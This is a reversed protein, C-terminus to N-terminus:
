IKFCELFISFARFYSPKFHIWTSLLINLVRLQTTDWVLHVNRSFLSAISMAMATPSRPSAKVPIYLMCLVCRSVCMDPVHQGVASGTIWKPKGMVMKDAERGQMIHKARTEAWILTGPPNTRNVDHKLAYWKSDERVRHFYHSRGRDM